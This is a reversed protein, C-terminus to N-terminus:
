KPKGSPHNRSPIYIIDRLNDGDQSKLSILLHHGFSDLFGLHVRYKSGSFYRTLDINEIKKEPNTVDIRQVTKNALILVIQRSSALIQTVPHPPNHDIKTKTTLIPKDSALKAHMFRTTGMM